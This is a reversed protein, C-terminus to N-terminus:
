KVACGHIRQPGAFINKMDATVGKVVIGGSSTGLCFYHLRLQRKISLCVETEKSTTVTIEGHAHHFVCDVSGTISSYYQFAVFAVINNSLFVYM